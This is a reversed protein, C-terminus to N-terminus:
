AIRGLSEANVRIRDFVSAEPDERYSEVGDDGAYARAAGVSRAIVDIYVDGKGSMSIAIAMSAAEDASKTIFTSGNPRDVHYELDKHTRKAM